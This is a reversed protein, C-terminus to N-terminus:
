PFQMRETLHYFPGLMLVADCSADGLWLSRADSVEVTRPGADSPNVQM